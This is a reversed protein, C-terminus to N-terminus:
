ETPEGLLPGYEEHEFSGVITGDITQVHTYLVGESKASNVVGKALRRDYRSAILVTREDTPDILETVLYMYGEVQRGYALYETFADADYFDEFAEADSGGVIHSFGWWDRDDDTSLMNTHNPSLTLVEWGDDERDAALQDVEALLQKYAEIHVDSQSQLRDMRPDTSGNETM